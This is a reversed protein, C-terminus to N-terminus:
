NIKMLTVIYNLLSLMTKKLLHHQLLYEHMLWGGLHGWNDQGKADHREMTGKWQIQASEQSWHFLASILSHSVEWSVTHFDPRKTERSLVSLYSGTESLIFDSTRGRAQQYRQHSSREAWKRSREGKSQPCMTTVTAPTQRSRSILMAEERVKSWDWILHWWCLGDQSSAWFLGTGVVMERSIQTDCIVLHCTSYQRTQKRKGAAEERKGVCM